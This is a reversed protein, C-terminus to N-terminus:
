IRMGGRQALWGKVTIGRFEGLSDIRHKNLEIFLGDKKRFKPSKNFMFDDRVKDKGREQLKFTASVTNDVVDAGLNLAKNRPLPKKNVKMFQGKERAYVDYTPIEKFGASQISFDLWSPPITDKKELEPELDIKTKLKQQSIPRIEQAQLQAITPTQTRMTKVVPTVDVIPKQKALSEIAQSVEITPRQAISPLQRVEKNREQETMVRPKQTAINEIDQKTELLGIPTRIGQVAIARGIDIIPFKRGGFLEIETIRQSPIQIGAGFSVSVDRTIPKPYYVKTVKFQEGYIGTATAVPEKIKATRSRTLRSIGTDIQKIKYRQPEIYRKIQKEAQVTIYEKGKTVETKITAKGTTEFPTPIQSYVRIKSPVTQKLTLIGREVTVYQKSPLQVDTVPIYDGYGKATKIGRLIVWEGRIKKIVVDKPLPLRKIDDQGLSKITRDYGRVKTRITKETIKTPIDVEQKKTIKGKEVKVSEKFTIGGKKAKLVEIKTPKSVLKAGAWFVLGQTGRKYVVNLSEQIDRTELYRAGAEVTTTVGYTVGAGIGVYRATKGVGIIARSGKAVTAGAGFLFALELPHKKVYEIPESVLGLGGAVIEQQIRRVKGMEGHLEVRVADRLDKWVNPIKSTYPEVIKEREFKIIPKMAKARAKSFAQEAELTEERTALQIVQETPTKVGKIAQAYGVKDPIPIKVDRTFEPRLTGATTGKAVVQMAPPVRVAQQPKDGYIIDRLRQFPDKEKPAIVKVAESLALAEKKGEREVEIYGKKVKIEKYGVRSLGKVLEEIEPKPEPSLRGALEPKVEATKTVDATFYPALIKKREGREFEYVGIDKVSIPTVDAGLEKQRAQISATMERQYELPTQYDQRIIEPEASEYQKPVQWYKDGEQRIILIDKQIRKTKPESALLDRQEYRVRETPSLSKVGRKEAKEVAQRIQTALIAQKRQEASAYGQERALTEARETPVGEARAMANYYMRSYREIQRDISQLKQMEAASVPQRLADFQRRINVVEQFSSYGAKRAARERTRASQHHYKTVFARVQAENYGSLIAALQRREEQKSAIKQNIQQQLIARQAQLEQQKRLFEQAQREKQSPM